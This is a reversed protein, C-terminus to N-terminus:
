LALSGKKREERLVRALEKVAAEVDAPTGQATLLFDNGDVVPKASTLVAAGPIKEKQAGMEQKLMPGIVMNYVDVLSKAEKPSSTSMRLEVKAQALSATGVIRTIASVDKLFPNPGMQSVGQRLVSSGVTVATEADVPLGYESQFAASDKAAGAFLSEDNTFVIAGDAAQGGIIADGETTRTRGVARGDSKSVNPKEATRRDVHEWAAVITEPRLDGAIVFLFKQQNEPGNIGKVCVAFDKLDTQPDIGAQKFLDDISKADPDTAADTKLEEFIPMLHTKVAPVQQMRGVDARMVVDCGSPLHKYAVSPQKPPLSAPDAIIPGSKKSILVAALAVIGGFLIVAVVIAAVLGANSKKPPPRYGGGAPMPGGGLISPGDNPNAGYGGGTSGFPGTPSGFPGPGGFGGGGPPPGYGGGGPPSGYGGPPSGMGFGGPATM